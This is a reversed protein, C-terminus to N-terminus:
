SDCDKLGLQLSESVSAWQHPIAQWQDPNFRNVQPSPHASTFMRLKPAEAQIFPLARQARRGVLVVACLKPLLPLLEMLAEIGDRVERRGIKITGNWGPIVNWLVTQKRPIGASMMFGFIADATPDDNNMSIFGSGIKKGTPSTRPGPKELLFLIRADVGGDLPDFDQFEWDPHTARLRDVYGALATMHPEALMLRRATAAELSRLTRPADALPDSM